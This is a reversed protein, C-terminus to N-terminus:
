WIIVEKYGNKIFTGESACCAAGFVNAGWCPIGGLSEFAIPKENGFVKVGRKKLEEM